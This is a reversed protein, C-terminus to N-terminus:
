GVRQLQTGENQQQKTYYRNLNKKRLCLKCIYRFGDNTLSSKYFESVLKPQLCTACKKHGERTKNRKKKYVFKRSVELELEEVTYNFEIEKRVEEYSYHFKNLRSSKITFGDM